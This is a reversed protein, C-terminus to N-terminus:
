KLTVTMFDKAIKVNHHDKIADKILKTDQYRRSIHTLIVEKARCDEAMKIVDQVTSHRHNREEDDKIFTADHILLDANEAAMAINKCPMTDGSYVVIKGKEIFAIDDLLIKKGKFLCHGKSKLDSYIKGKPPLGMSTAKEVDIKIRDKEKFIYAVAPIGHKAPTSLIEYEDTEMLRESGSGEFETNRAVIEFSKTSYGLDLLMPVFKEAEPAYITLKGTKGELNMTEMLGLLGAFHDAHWHTIFIDNIRMFNVDAHTMQKQTGEGCDFLFYAETESQYKLHIAAHNRFKTPVGATTGLFTIMISTM